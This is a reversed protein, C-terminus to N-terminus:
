RPPKLKSYKFLMGVPSQKAEKGARALEEMKKAIDKPNAPDLAKDSVLAAVALGVDGTAAAAAALTGVVVWSGVESGAFKWGKATLEKVNKRHENFAVEINDFVKDATRYFNTPNTAVVEAIGKSLIERIEGLADQKRIELLAEPPVHGLWQMENEALTQLGRVMHLDKLHRQQEVNEADYELKWVFYQWSTPADIVPVGGLRQATFLLENSVSMRGLAQSAIIMGPHASKLLQAHQDKTAREIQTKLDGDWQTDFLVRKSDKIEGVVRDITDMSEAFDRFDEFSDFKRGFVKGAHVLSDSKGLNLFFNREDEDLASPSALVVVIPPSVDACALDKYQLLNLAHKILYYAQQRPEWRKYLDRSRMFPCPLILTDTYLGCKSAINESSDPFLDGGFVGKLATHMDELHIRAVEGISEWFITMAELFDPLPATLESIANESQSLATGAQHPTMGREVMVRYFHGFNGEIFQFYQQQIEALSISKKLEERYHMQEVALALSRVLGDVTNLNIKGDPGYRVAQLSDIVKLGKAFKVKGESLKEKLIELRKRLRDKYAVEDDTPEAKPFANLQNEMRALVEDRGILELTADISPTQAAGTVMVRLPMAIKPMKLKHASVVSKIAESIRERKWEIKALQERLEALAPRVEAAYHENRLPEPPDLARYFYVAADALERVTSVREKLLAVVKELPPGKKPDCGDAVLFPEALAALRVDDAAKLYQANIWRLKEPDFRAPSQSIHELDFWGVLQERSFVEEDGHSWGLRALYNVLAEPLYGDDRYQTVSVAGHRKSLREGDPGLIMPVHAFRPLAAGLARYINIQRPTNNVHDDGRIVHTIEMDLDDVVVGFNYTPIGDARLLVLDDLEGNSVTIPGKVLDTFTVEGEDPNRFRVVPQAGPPPKLGLKKANEPRWRGDYRPKEGRARQQERLAELEERSAYCHYAKGSAILQDAVARYRALRDMQYYPGEYDLGLWAMAELIANVSEQTSRERDTDEVRLIFTGGHKKSYAWCFLATRAGGIHLFGTPSPAFRTRIM